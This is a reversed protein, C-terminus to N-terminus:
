CKPLTVSKRHHVKMLFKMDDNVAAQEMIKSGRKKALRKILNPTRQSLALASCTKVQQLEFM